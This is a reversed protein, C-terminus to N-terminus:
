RRCVMIATIPATQIIKGNHRLAEARWQEIPFHYGGHFNALAKYQPNNEIKAFRFSRRLDRPSLILGAKLHSGILMILSTILFRQWDMPPSPDVADVYILVGGPKVLEYLRDIYGPIDGLYVGVYSSIVVDHPVLESWADQVSKVISEVHGNRISMIPALRSELKAAMAQAAEVATIRRIRQRADVILKLQLGTGPGVELVSEADKPVAHVVLRGAYTENGGYEDDYFGSHQLEDYLLSVDKDLPM